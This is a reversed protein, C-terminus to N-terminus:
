RARQRVDEFWNIVVELRERSTSAEANGPLVGVLRGDAMSDLNRRTTPGGNLLGAPRTFPVPETMRFAPTASILTSVLAGQGPIYYLESRQKSWFPHIAGGSSIRHPPSRDPPFPKVYVDPRGPVLHQYALWLGDASFSSLSYIAQEAGPEPETIITDTRASRSLVRVVSSGAKIETYSLTDADRGSDPVHEIGPAPTTLRAAAGSGDASQTWIALDGERNSQFAIRDNGLWIPARNSGGSTVQRAASAGGFEYLWIQSGAPESREYLMRTGDPSVRPAAFTGAVAGLRAVNRDRDFAVISAVDSATAVAPGPIYVLTGTSSFALHADAATITVGVSRRVGEIVPVPAGSVARRRDDFPVAFLTGSRLFAIHGSPVYRADAGRIGLSTRTNTSLSHVVIDAKDWRDSGTGSALTFLVTEGDPLMQPASATEGAKTPVILEPAGGTDPIRYVGQDSGVLLYGATWTMGFPAGQITGLTTASGGTAPVRRFSEDEVVYFALSDGDPSFAPLLIASTSQTGRVARPETDSLSRLYLQRNAVYAIQSGDASMALPLRGVTTFRQDEPLAISFRTVQRPAAPWMRWAVVGAAIAGASILAVAVLARAWIPRVAADRHDDVLLGRPDRTISDLEVRVDAAAHWRDKPNKALCRRLLETLRPHLRSPLLSWDPESKLVSALVESVSDGDFARRGTLMEYLVCGFSFLDARHDAPLGKAQEPAMYAATGLVVGAQTAGLTLTPSHSLNSAATTELAKALGFDLVKVKGDPAIKINAPKLDRHVIGKEHAAELAECIQRALRVAEDVPLPGRGIREDLSPGEILELVLFRIADQQELGYIAGVNPHNLQAVAQAERHFRAVRDADNAFLEPLVKIAVDRRLREDRARYVEGMGGAGILGLIEYPGLRSGLALLPM